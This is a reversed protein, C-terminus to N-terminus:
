LLYLPSQNTTNLYCELEADNSVSVLMENEGLSYGLQITAPLTGGQSAVIEDILYQYTPKHPFSFQINENRSPLCIEIHGWCSSEASDRDLNCKPTSSLLSQDESCSHHHLHGFPICDNFQGMHIMNALAEYSDLYHGSSNELLIMQSLTEPTPANWLIIVAGEDQRDVCSVSAPFLPHISKGCSMVCVESNGSIEYRLSRLSIVPQSYPQMHYLLKNKNLIFIHGTSLGIWLCGNAEVASSIYFDTNFSYRVLQDIESLSFCNQFDFTVSSTDQIPNNSFMVTKHGYCYLTHTDEGVLIHSFADDHSNLHIKQKLQLDGTELNSCELAYVCSDATSVWLFSQFVAISSIQSVSSIRKYLPQFNDAKILELNSPFILIYGNKTGIYVHNNSLMAICTCANSKLKINHLIAKSQIDLVSVCSNGDTLLLSVWVFQQGISVALVGESIISQTSYTKLTTSGLEFITIMLESNPGHSIPVWIEVLGQPQESSLRTLSSQQSREDTHTMVFHVSKLFIQKESFISHVSSLLQIEVKSLTSVIEDLDRSQKYNNCIEELVHYRVAFTMGLSEPIASKALDIIKKMLKQWCNMRKTPSFLDPDYVNEVALSCNLANNLNMSWIHINELCDSLAPTVKFAYALQVAIRYLLIPSVSSINAITGILPPIYTNKAQLSFVAESSRQSVCYDVLIGLRSSICPYRYQELLLLEDHTSQFDFETTLSKEFTMMHDYQTSLDVDTIYCHYTMMGQTSTRLSEMSLNCIHPLLQSVDIKHKRRCFEVKNEKELLLHICNDLSIEVATTSDCREQLCESCFITVMASDTGGLTESVIDKILRFCPSFNLASLMVFSSNFSILIRNDRDHLLVGDRWLWVDNVNNDIVVENLIAEVIGVFQRDCLLHHKMTYKWKVLFTESIQSAIVDAQSTSLHFPFVYFLSLKIVVPILIKQKIFMSIFSNAITSFQKYSCSLQVSSICEHLKEVIYEHSLISPFRISSEFFFQNEHNGEITQFFNLLLRLLSDLDCVILDCNGDNSINLVCGVDNLYGSALNAISKLENISDNKLCSLTKEFDSLLMFPSFKRSDNLLEIENKLTKASNLVLRGMYPQGDSCELLMASQHMAQLIPKISTGSSNGVDISSTGKDQEYLIHLFAEHFMLSNSFHKVLPHLETSISLKLREKEKESLPTSVLSYGLFFVCSPSAQVSISDLWAWLKVIETKLLNTDFVIVYIAFSTYLVKEIPIDHSNFSSNKINWINYTYSGLEDTDSCSAREVFVPHVLKSQPYEVKKFFTMFKEKGSDSPGTVITKIEYDSISNNLKVKLLQKTKKFSQRDDSDILPVGELRFDELRELLALWSPLKNIENFSLNLYKLSPCNTLCYPVEYFQNYSLDLRTLNSMGKFTPLSPILNHSLNLSSLCPM